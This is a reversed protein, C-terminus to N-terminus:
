NNLILIRSYNQMIIYVLSGSIILIITIINQMKSLNLLVKWKIISGEVENWHKSRVKGCVHSLSQPRSANVLPPPHTCQSMNCKRKFRADPVMQCWLWMTLIYGRSLKSDKAKTNTCLSILSLRISSNYMYLENHWIIEWIYLTCVYLYLIYKWISCQVKVFSGNIPFTPYIASIHSLCAVSRRIPKM